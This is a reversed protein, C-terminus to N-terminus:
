SVPLALSSALYSKVSQYQILKGIGKRKFALKELEKLTFFESQVSLILISHGM